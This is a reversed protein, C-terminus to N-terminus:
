LYFILGKGTIRHEEKGQSPKRNTKSDTKSFANSNRRKAIPKSQMTLKSCNRTEFNSVKEWLYRGPLPEDKEFDFNYQQRKEELREINRKRTVELFDDHNIVTGFLNRCVSRSPTRIESQRPIGTETCDTSDVAATYSVMKGSVQM